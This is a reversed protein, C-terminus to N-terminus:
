LQKWMTTEIGGERGAGNLPLPPRSRTNLVTTVPGVAQRTHPTAPLPLPPPSKTFSCSDRTGPPPCHCHCDCYPLPCHCHCDCYPLPCHCHHPCHDRAGNGARHSLCFFTHHRARHKHLSLLQHVVSVYDCSSMTAMSSPPSVM